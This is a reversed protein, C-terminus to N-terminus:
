CTTVTLPNALLNAFVLDDPKGFKAEKRCRELTRLLVGREDFPEERHGADTKVDDIEGDYVREEILLRDKLVRKWRLALVEGVRLSAFVILTVVSKSPEPLGEIMRKIDSLALLIPPKRVKKRPLKVGMAPNKPILEWVVAQNM